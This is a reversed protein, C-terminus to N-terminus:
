APGSYDIRVKMTISREIVVSVFRGPFEPANRGQIKFVRNTAGSRSQPQFVLTQLIEETAFFIKLWEQENVLFTDVIM